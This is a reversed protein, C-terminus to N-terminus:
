MSGIARERLVRREQELAVLDGFLRNYAEQNGVPNLRGLKSKLQAIERTLQREQIRALLEAAYRVDSDDDSRPPEVALQTILGRVEDNPASDRLRAAWDAGGAATVGGAAVIVQLVAAHPPAIFAAASLADFAPGLMAPRQVALKLTERERQVDPDRPDFAPAPKAPAAPGDPAGGRALRGNTRTNRGSNERAGHERVRRLVFDENMIGLWRDLNVAYMQRLGRDKIAAVVPAVADLAALRGEATELDHREIEARIRFEFLPTCSAVLDRVASDGRQVRLDCPDLGDPQVAVFTRTAFKQDNDFARLAARQGASDGDFTFIVGGEFTDKDMLLRRLIKIHEDGFATGCTAIATGIGALHCAMVDTYGEVVVAQGSRAIEKKALDVGYLVSGKKYIPSEPTNLYKPGDDGEHLRRAGFGVVDGSLDRIPWMLRGRFRDMPGRRGEKALGGTIMERDSFGRGRLHRVLAEWENPAYGVGFREADAREFGRETLFGRGVAAEQGGLQEAYFDAAAQHAEVLRARQGQERRPTYGGEEYRLQLGAKAALREIAEAFSLHEIKQIFSIADGGEACGFCYWLNRPPTVNFSPSKEDHFPCLGKLSGGGANRLQLYEGVVDAIPSRERVLAIDEDRIRGAM